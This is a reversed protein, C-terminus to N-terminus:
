AIAASTSATRVLPDMQQALKPFGARTGLDAPVTIVTLVVVVIQLSPGFAGHAL